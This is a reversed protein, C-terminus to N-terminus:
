THNIILSLRTIINQILFTKELVCQINTTFDSIITLKESKPFLSIVNIAKSDKKYNVSFRLDLM